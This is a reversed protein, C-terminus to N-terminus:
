KELICEINTPLIPFYYSHWIRRIPIGPFLSNYVKLALIEYKFDYGFHKLKDPASFHLFVGESFYHKHTPDSYAARYKFHPLNIKVRGGKKLIRYCENMVEMPNDLHELVNDMLIFDVSNDDFPYPFVNLDYIVDIGETEVIDVNIWGEQQPKIKEGCGFNLKKMTRM